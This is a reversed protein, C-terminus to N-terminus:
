YHTHFIKSVITWKGNVKLLNFYDTFGYGSLNDTDVRASAATGTIDIYAIAVVPNESPKFHDDITPFLTDTVAGGALTGKEDVSYMTAVADFAPKMIESNAQKGGESYQNLLLDEIAKYDQTYTTKTM